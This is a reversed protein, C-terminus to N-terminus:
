RGQTLDTLSGEAMPEAADAARGPRPAARGAVFECATPDLLDACASRSVEDRSGDVLKALCNDMCKRHGHARSRHFETCLRECERHRHGEIRRERQKEVEAEDRPQVAAVLAREDPKVAVTNMSVFAFAAIGATALASGRTIRRLRVRPPAMWAIRPAAYVLGGRAPQAAVPDPQQAIRSRSARSERMLDSSGCGPCIRCRHMDRWVCYLLGPVLLFLWLALELRDSGAVRTDPAATQGCRTCLMRRTSARGMAEGM